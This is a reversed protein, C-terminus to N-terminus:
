KCNKHKRYIVDQKGYRKEFRGGDDYQPDFVDRKYEIFGLPEYVSSLFGDFHDLYCGGKQIASNVLYKGIGGVGPENNFVAVIDSYKGDQWMKLAFGIDYGNLKFLKMKSLEAISYPTLMEAHKSKKLSNYFNQANQEEYDNGLIKEIVDKTKVNHEILTHAKQFVFEQMLYNLVRKEFSEKLINNIQKKIIERIM